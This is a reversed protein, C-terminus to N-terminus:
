VRERLSEIKAKRDRKKKGSGWGVAQHRYILEALDALRHAMKPPWDAAQGLLENLRNVTAGGAKLTDRRAEDEFLSKLDVVAREEESMAALQAKREAEAQALRAQEEAHQQAQVAEERRKAEVQARIQEIAAQKE